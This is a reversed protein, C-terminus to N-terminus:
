SESFKKWFPEDDTALSDILDLSRATDQLYAPMDVYAVRVPKLVGWNRYFDRCSTACEEFASFYVDFDDEERVSAVKAGANRRLLADRVYNMLAEASALDDLKVYTRFIQDHLRQGHEIEVAMDKVANSLRNMSEATGLDFM